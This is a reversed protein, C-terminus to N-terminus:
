ETSAAKWRAPARRCQPLATPWPLAWTTTAIYASLRETSTPCPKKYTLILQRIQAPIAYGVTDAINVTTAGADIVARLLQFLYEPNTRTADM